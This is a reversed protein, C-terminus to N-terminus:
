KKVYRVPMAMSKPDAYGTKLDNEQCYIYKYVVRGDATKDSTWFAAYEGFGVFRKDDVSAYGMPLLDLGSEGTIKVEPWFEWMAEKNFHANVLLAGINSYSAALADCEASTPLRYGEPCAAVAQDYTYFRGTIYSMAESSRFVLGGFSDEAWNRSLWQLGGASALKYPHNKSDKLDPTGDVCIEPISKEEDVTVLTVTATSPYYKDSDIPYISFNFNFTGLTDKGYNHFNFDLAVGPYKGKEGVPLPGRQSGKPDAYYLTDSKSTIGSCSWYLGMAKKDPHTIGFPVIHVTEDLGIFVPVDEFRFYGNMYSKTPEEKKKCSAIVLVSLALVSVSFIHRATVKM